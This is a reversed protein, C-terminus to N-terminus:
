TGFEKAKKKTSNMKERVLMVAESIIVTKIM